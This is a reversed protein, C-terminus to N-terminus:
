VWWPSRAWKVFAALNEDDWGSIEGVDFKNDHHNYVALVFRAARLEGGSCVHMWARLKAEDWNSAVGPANRLAPFSRALACIKEEAKM